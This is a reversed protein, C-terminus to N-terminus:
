SCQLGKKTIKFYVELSNMTWSCGIFRIYILHIQVIYQLDLISLCEETIYPGITQARMSIHKKKEM